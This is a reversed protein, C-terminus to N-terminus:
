EGWQALEITVAAAGTHFINLSQIVGFALLWATELCESWM